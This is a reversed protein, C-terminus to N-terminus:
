KLMSERMAFDDALFKDLEAGQLLVPVEGIALVSDKIAGSYGTKLNNVIIDVIEQPMDKSGVLMRIAPNVINFGQEAFTPTNPSTELRKDLMLGLVTVKQEEAQAIFKASLIAADIHNGLIDSFVKNGGEYVVGTTEIGLTKNLLNLSLNQIQSPLGITLKGPNEKAFAIFEDLTKFKSDKKLLLVDGTSNLGAIYTFSDTKFTCAESTYVFNAVDTNSFVGLTYGDPKAKTIEEMGVLGGASGNNIIVMSKGMLTELPTCVARAMSDTGGGANQPVICQIEKVPYEATTKKSTSATSAVPTSATQKTPEQCGTFCAATVTLMSAIAMAKKIFNFTM